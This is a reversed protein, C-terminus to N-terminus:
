VAVIAVDESLIRSPLSMNSGLLPTHAGLGTTTGDYISGDVTTTALLETHTTLHHACVGAFPLILSGSQLRKATEQRM